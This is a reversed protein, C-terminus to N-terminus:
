QNKPHSGVLSSVAFGTEFTMRTAESGGPACAPIQPSSREIIEGSYARFKMQSKM